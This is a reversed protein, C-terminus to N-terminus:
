YTLCTPNSGQQLKAIHNQIATIIQITEVEDMRCEVYRENLSPPDIKLMQPFVQERLFNEYLQITNTIEQFQQPSLRKLTHVKNLIHIIKEPHLRDVFIRLYAKINQNAKPFPTSVQWEGIMNKLNLKVHYYEDGLQREGQECTVDKQAQKFDFKGKQTNDIFYNYVCEHMFVPVDTWPAKCRKSLPTETMPGIPKADKGNTLLAQKAIVQYQVRITDKLNCILKDKLEEDLEKFYSTTIGM